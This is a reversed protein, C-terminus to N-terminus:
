LSGFLFGKGWNVIPAVCGLSVRCIAGLWALSNLWRRHHFAQEESEAPTGCRCKLADSAAHPRGRGRWRQKARKLSPTFGALWSRSKGQTNLHGHMNVWKVKFVCCVTGQVDCTPTYCM